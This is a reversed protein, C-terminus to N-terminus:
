LDAVTPMKVNAMVIFFDDENWREIVELANGVFGWVYGGETLALSVLPNASIYVVQEGNITLDEDQWAPPSELLGIETAYDIGISSIFVPSHRDNTTGDGLQGNDNAGWAWFINDNTIAFTSYDTISVFIVNELVKVPLYRNTTSGDGLQGRENNGFSFLSGDETIVATRNGAAHVSAAGRMVLVPQLHEDISGIGLQGSANAGWAWLHTTDSIALYHGPGAAIPSTSMLPLPLPPRTDYLEDTKAEEHLEDAVIVFPAAAQYPVIEVDGAIVQATEDTRFFSQIEDFYWYVALAAATVILIFIVWAFVFRGWRKPKQGRNIHKYDHTPMHHPVAVDELPITAPPPSVDPRIEAQPPPTYEQQVPGEEVKVQLAKPAFIVPPTHKKEVQMFEIETSCRLCFRDGEIAQYGCNRCKLLRERLNKGCNGCIVSGVLMEKSCYVCFM